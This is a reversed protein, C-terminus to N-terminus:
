PGCFRRRDWRVTFATPPPRPLRHSRWYIRPIMGVTQIPRSDVICTRGRQRVPAILGTRRPRAVRRAAGGGRRDAQWRTACCSCSRPAWPVCRSRIATLAVSPLWAHTDGLVDATEVGISSSDPGGRKSPNLALRAWSGPPAWRWGRMEGQDVRHATLKSLRVAGIERQLRLGEPVVQWPQSGADDGESRAEKGNYVFGLFQSASRHM